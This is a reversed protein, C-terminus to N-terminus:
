FAMSVLVVDTLWYNIGDSPNISVNEPSDEIEDYTIALDHVLNKM